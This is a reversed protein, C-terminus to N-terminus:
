WVREDNLMLYTKSRFWNHEVRGLPRTLCLQNLLEVYRISFKFPHSLYITTDWENNLEKKNDLLTFYYYFVNRDNTLNIVTDFFKNKNWFNKWRTNFVLNNCRHAAFNFNDYIHTINKWTNVCSSNQYKFYWAKIM